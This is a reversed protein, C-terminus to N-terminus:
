KLVENLKEQYQLFVNTATGINVDGVSYQSVVEVLHKILSLATSTDNATIKGFGVLDNLKTLYDQICWTFSEIHADKNDM